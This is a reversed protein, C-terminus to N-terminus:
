GKIGSIANSQIFAKNLAIFLLIIPLSSMFAAAMMFPMDISAQSTVDNLLLLAVQVTKVSPDTLYISPGFFDNWIGVFWFLVQAVIAPKILPVVVKIFTKFWGAGEVRSEEILSDPVVNRITTILFLMMGVNGFFGPIILPWLTNVLQMESFVRYQPLMVAAYPVMMSVLLVILITNKYPFKMKAFAFAALTSVFTGVPIVLVEIILTNKIADLMNFSSLPYRENGTFVDVFNDWVPNKPWFNKDITGAIAEAPTKLANIIMYFYPFIMLFAGFCVIVTSIVFLTRDTIKRKKYNLSILSERYSM